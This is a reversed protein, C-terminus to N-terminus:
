QRAMLKERVSRFLLFTEDNVVKQKADYRLYFMFSELLKAYDKGGKRRAEAAMRPRYLRRWAETAEQEAPYMIDWYDKDRVEEIFESIM